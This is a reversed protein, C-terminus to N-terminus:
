HDDPLAFQFDEDAGAGYGLAIRNLAAADGNTQAIGGLLTNNSGTTIASGSNRGVITNYDGTTINTGAVAGFCSNYDGETLALLAGTGVGSNSVGTTKNTLSLGGFAVNGGTAPLRGAELNNVKFVLDTSDTTGIFNTGASTGLNGTTTWAGNNLLSSVSVDSPNATGGSINAKVTLNAMQALKANTVDNNRINITETSVSTASRVINVEWASGNYTCIADFDYLLQNATISQGLISFTKGNTTIDLVARWKFDFIDNETPTGTLSIAYNGTAIGTGKVVYQEFLDSINFNDIETGTGDLTYSKTLLRM